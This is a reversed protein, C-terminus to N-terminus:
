KDTEISIGLKEFFYEAVEYLIDEPCTQDNVFFWYEDCQNNISFDQNKYHFDLWMETIGDSIYNSIRIGEKKKTFRKLDSFSCSEPLSIVHRSRDNM